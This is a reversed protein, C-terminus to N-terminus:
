AETGFTETTFGGMTEIVLERYGTEPDPHRQFILGPLEVLAVEATTHVTCGNLVHGGFMTGNEDSLAVHLHAGGEGITGVMSVIEFCGSRISGDRKGAYRLATRTLSGVCTLVAAAGIGQSSVYTLLEEKLDQGPHLRFAHIMAGEVLAFDLPVNPLPEIGSNEEPENEVEAVLMEEAL